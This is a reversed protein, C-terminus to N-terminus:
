KAHRGVRGPGLPIVAAWRAARRSSRLHEACGRLMQAGGDYLGAAYAGAAERALQLAPELSVRSSGRARRLETELRDAIEALLGQITPYAFREEEDWRGPYGEALLVCGLIDDLTNADGFPPVLREGGVAGTREVSQRAEETIPASPDRRPLDVDPREVRVFPGGYYWEPFRM